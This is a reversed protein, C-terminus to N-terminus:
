SLGVAALRQCTAWSAGDTYDGFVAVTRDGLELRDGTALGAGWPATVTWVPDAGFRERALEVEARTPSSLRVPVNGALSAPWLDAPAWLPREVPQPLWTTTRAGRGDSVSTARLVTAADPLQRLQRVRARELREHELVATM